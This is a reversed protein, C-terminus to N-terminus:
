NPLTPTHGLSPLMETYIALIRESDPVRGEIQCITSVLCAIISTAICLVGLIEEDPYNPVMRGDSGVRRTVREAGSQTLGCMSKWETRSGAFTGTGGLKKDVEETMEIYPNFEFRGARFEAIDGDSGCFMMWMGRYFTEVVPRLLTFASGFNGATILRVISDHHEFVITAFLFLTQVRIVSPAVPEQIDLLFLREFGFEFAASSIRRSAELSAVVTPSIEHYTIPM